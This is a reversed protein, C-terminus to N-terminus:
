DVELLLFDAAGIAAQDLELDVLVALVAHEVAEVVDAQGQDLLVLDRGELFACLRGPGPHLPAARVGPRARARNRAGAAMEHLNCRMFRRCRTPSAPGPM